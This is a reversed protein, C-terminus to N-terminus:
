VIFFILVLSMKRRVAIKRPFFFQNTVKNDLRRWCSTMWYGRASRCLEARHIPDYVSCKQKWGNHKAEFSMHVSNELMLLIRNCRKETSHEMVCAEFDIQEFIWGKYYALKQRVHQCPSSLAEMNRNNFTRILQNLKSYRWATKDYQSWENPLYWRCSIISM